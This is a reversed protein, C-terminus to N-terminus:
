KLKVCLDTITIQEDDNEAFYRVVQTFAEARTADEPRGKQVGATQVETSRRFAVSISKNTRFNINCQNHYLADAAHLDQAFEIRSRM